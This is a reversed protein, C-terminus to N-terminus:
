PNPIAGLQRMMSFSDALTWAEVWKGDEVRYINHFRWAVASGTPELGMFAGSHTAQFHSRVLVMDNEAIMREITLTIDSFADWFALVFARYDALGRIDDANEIHVVVDQGVTADSVEMARTNWAEYWRRVPDKTAGVTM